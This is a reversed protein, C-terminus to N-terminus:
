AVCAVSKLTQQLLDKTIEGETENIHIIYQIEASIEGGADVIEVLNKKETTLMSQCNAEGLTLKIQGLDLKKAM